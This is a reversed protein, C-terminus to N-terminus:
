FMCHTSVYEVPIYECSDFMLESICVKLKPFRDGSCEVNVQAFNHPDTTIIIIIIIIIINLLLHATARHCHNYHMYM